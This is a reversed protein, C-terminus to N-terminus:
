NNMRLKGLAAWRPDVEQVKAEETPEHEKESTYVMLGDEDIDENRFRPHLKKM